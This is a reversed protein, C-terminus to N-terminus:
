LVGAKRLHLEEPQIWPMPPEVIRTVWAPQTLVAQTEGLRGYHTFLAQAARAEQNLREQEDNSVALSKKTTELPKLTGALASPLFVHTQAPHMAQQQVRQQMQVQRAMKPAVKKLSQSPVAHNVGAAGAATPLAPWGEHSPGAQEGGQAGRYADFRGRGMSKGKEKATAQKKQKDSGSEKGSPLQSGDKSGVVKKAPSM